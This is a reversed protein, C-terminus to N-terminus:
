TWCWTMWSRDDHRMMMDDHGLMMDDHRLMIERCWTMMVWCWTMLAPCQWWTGVDDDHRLMMDDHGSMMDDHRSMMDPCWTMTDRWWTKDWWWIMDRWWTIDCWWIVDRCSTAVYHWRTGVDHSNDPCLHFTPRLPLTVWSALVKPCGCSWKQRRAWFFEADHTPNATLGSM